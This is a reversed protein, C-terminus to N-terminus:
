VVILGPTTEDMAKSVNLGARSLAWNCFAASRISWYLNRCALSSTVGISRGAGDADPHGGGRPAGLGTALTTGPSTFSAAHRIQRNGQGAPRVVTGPRQGVAPHRDLADVQTVDRQIRLLDEEPHEAM